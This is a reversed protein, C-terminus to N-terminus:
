KVPSDVNPNPPPKKGVIKDKAWKGGVYLGYFPACVVAALVYFCVIIEAGAGM